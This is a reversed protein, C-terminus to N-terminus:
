IITDNMYHLIIFNEIRNIINLTEHKINYKKIMEYKYKQWQDFNNQTIPIPNQIINRLRRIEITENELSNFLNTRMRDIINYNDGYLMKLDKELDFGYQHKHKM